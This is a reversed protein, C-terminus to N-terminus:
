GFRVVPVGEAVVLVVVVIIEEVVARRVVGDVRQLFLAAVVVSLGVRRRLRQALCEIVSHCAWQRNQHPLRSEWAM